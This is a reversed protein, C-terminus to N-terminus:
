KSPRKPIRMSFRMSTTSFALQVGVPPNWCLLAQLLGGVCIASAVQAQARERQYGNLDESPLLGPRKRIWTAEELRSYNLDVLLSLTLTRLLSAQLTKVLKDMRTRFLRVINTYYVRGFSASLSPGGLLLSDPEDPCAFNLLKGTFHAVTETQLM